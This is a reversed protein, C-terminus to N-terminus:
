FQDIVLKKMELLKRYAGPREMLDGMNQPVIQWSVGFRDKCWGCAEAEPVASLTGWLYDIEAQDACNIQFSLSENFTFDQEVGSDMAVFWQGFAEFEGFMLSDPTAPGTQVGYPVLNGLRADKFVSVYYDMAERAQNQHSSGFMLSPILNPRPDGDPNTLILQWSYGYRDRVWGYMPSFPYAGLEMLVEGEFALKLWLDELHQEALLDRSPDFNVMFSMSPNPKFEPGANIAVFPIGSLKFEVTLPEGALDEQFDLLGETPYYTVNTIRSEEFLKAYYSAAKLAQHDFWLNPIIKPSPSM